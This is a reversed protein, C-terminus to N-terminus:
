SGSKMAELMAAMQGHVKQIAKLPRILVKFDDILGDDHLDFRGYWAKDWLENRNGDRITVLKNKARVLVRWSGDDNRDLVWFTWTGTTERTVDRIVSTKGTEYVIKSGPELVYRPLGDARAFACPSFAVAIVMATIADRLPTGSPRRM